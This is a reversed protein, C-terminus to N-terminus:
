VSVINKPYENDIILEKQFMFLVKKKQIFM